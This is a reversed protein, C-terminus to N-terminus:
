SRILHASCRLLYVLYVEINCVPVMEQGPNCGGGYDVNYDGCPGYVDYAESHFVGVQTLM